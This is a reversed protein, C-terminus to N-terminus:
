LIEADTQWVWVTVTEGTDGYGTTIIENFHHYAPIAEKRLAEALGMKRFLEMARSNTFEMKPWRTTSLSQEVLLCPQGCQALQYAAVMGVPGGGVVLIDTERTANPVANPADLSGM